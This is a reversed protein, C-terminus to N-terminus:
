RRAVVVMTVDDDFPTGAAHTEIARLAGEIISGPPAGALGALTRRLRATGFQEGAANRCEFVGDTVFVLADGSELPVRTPVPTPLDPEIGLPPLHTPLSRPEGGRAPLAYIPGHGASVIGAEHTRPDVEFAAATVFRGASLDRCLRTNLFVLFEPLEITDALVRAYARCTAALLAAGVGHGTVDGIGGGFVGEPSVGWDYFDGGAYAAPRSFGAVGLTLLGPDPPAMAQQIERAIQMERELAARSLREAEYRKEATVDRSLGALMPLGTAPDIFPIDHQRLVGRTGDPRTYPLDDTLRAVGEAMIKKCVEIFFRAQEKNPDADLLSRGIISEKTCGFYEAARRNAYVFRMEHDHVYFFDPILDLVRTLLDIAERAERPSMEAPEPEPPM